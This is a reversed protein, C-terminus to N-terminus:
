GDIGNNTGNLRKTEGDRKMIYGGTGSDLSAAPNKVFGCNM